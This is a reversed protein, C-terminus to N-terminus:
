LMIYMAFAIFFEGISPSPPFPLFLSVYPLSLSLFPLFLSLLCLSLPSHPSSLRTGLGEGAGAKSQMSCAILFKLRPLGPFSVLSFKCSSLNDICLTSGPHTRVPLHHENPLFDYQIHWLHQFTSENPTNSSSNADHKTITPMCLICISAEEVVNILGHQCCKHEVTTVWLPLFHSILDLSRLLSLYVDGINLNLGGQNQTKQAVGVGNIDHDTSGM